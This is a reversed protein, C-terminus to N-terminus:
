LDSGNYILIELNYPKFPSFVSNNSSNLKPTFYFYSTENGTRAQIIWKSNYSSNFQIRGNSNTTGYYTFNTESYLRRSINLGSLSNNNTDVFNFTDTLNGLITTIIQPTEVEKVEFLISDTGLQSQNFTINYYSKELYLSSPCNSYFLTSNTRYDYISCSFNTIKSNNPTLIVFNVLYTFNILLEINGDLFVTKEIVMDNYYANIKYYGKPVQNLNSISENMITFTNGFPPKVELRVSSVIENGYYSKITLNYFEVNSDDQNLIFDKVYIIKELNGLVTLNSYENGLNTEVIVEYLGIPLQFSSFGNYDTNKESIITGTSSFVSIKKFSTYDSQPIQSIL